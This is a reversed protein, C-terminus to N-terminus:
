GYSLRFSLSFFTTIYNNLHEVPGMCFTQRLESTELNQIVHYKLCIGLGQYNFSVALNNLFAKNQM